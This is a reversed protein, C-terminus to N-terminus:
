TQMSDGKSRGKVGLMKLMEAVNTTPLACQYNQCVYATAKGESSALDCMLPALRVVEASETAAPRFLVVANPLFPRRVGTLMADTDVAGKHGVVVVEYSPGRAFDVASLLSSFASPSQVVTGSFVRAITDAKEELDTRGVMRGLRLLNMAAVSNGSPVAGDYAEKTRVLLREGYDPTMFFGGSADDWFHTLLRDNLDLAGRLYGVDFTAEYLEVLGWVLFAYDDVFAPIASEGGRHRHLLRGQSDVMSTLIFDVARRAAQAYSPEGFARSAKALAAIMLGNWDALIKDDRLPRVRDVRSAFLKERVAEIAEAFEHEDMEHEASLETIRGTMHLINTGTKGQTAEDLFNGEQEVRFVRLAVEAEEAGLVERIEEERWVYFKGEEGESDAGEASYFAGDPSTMDRLVYALVERATAAYEGKGTAQSAETYAMAALAQDYLMKEFHPVLWWADTSYRHFGYGVHDYVGGCRMASLTEEVMHLARADGTKRWYRLLFRLRGTTPFKPAGGFGAHREDYSDSLQRYAAELVQDNLDAEPFQEAMAGVARAVHDALNVADARRNRWVDHVRPILELMGVRGFRTERPVYTAAFFPRKDPTMIITLPWGGSGTMSQSVTMYITDIDPREERDVKICVFADNLMRAVSANEFSEREMVHCWHCTAYGISLFVPKDEKRALAFAEEGWPYWDVPNYAHQLLYPSREHILRNPKESADEHPKVPYAGWRTEAAIALAFAGAAFPKQRWRVGGAGSEWAFQTPLEVCRRGQCIWGCLFQM